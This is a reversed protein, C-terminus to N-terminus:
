RSLERTRGIIFMASADVVEKSITLPGSATFTSNGYIHILGNWGNIRTALEIEGPTSDRLWVDASYGSM